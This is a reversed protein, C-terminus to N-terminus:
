FISLLVKLERAVGGDPVHGRGGGGMGNNTSTCHLIPVQIPNKSGNFSSFITEIGKKLKSRFQLQSALLVVTVTVHLVCILPCM